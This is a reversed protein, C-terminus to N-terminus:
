FKLLIARGNLVKGSMGPGKKEPQDDGCLANTNEQCSGQANTCRNNNRKLLLISLWMMKKLVVVTTKRLGLM